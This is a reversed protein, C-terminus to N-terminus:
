EKITLNDDELHKQMMEDVITRIENMEHEFYDDVYMCLIDLDYMEGRRCSVIDDVISEAIVNRNNINDLQIRLKFSNTGFIDDFEVDAISVDGETNVVEIMHNNESYPELDLACLRSGNYDEIELIMFFYCRGNLKVFM